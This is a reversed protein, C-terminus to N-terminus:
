FSLDFSVGILSLILAGISIAGLGLIFTMVIWFIKLFGSAGLAALTDFVGIAYPAVNSEGNVESSYKKRFRRGLEEREKSFEDRKRGAGHDHVKYVAEEAIKRVAKGYKPSFKYNETQTPIGCLRLVEAVCRVTYAGRSFGFLFIRDGPEYSKLISEYCDTINKSIGSGFAANIFKRVYQIPKISIRGGDPETGLGPDYFAIQEKPNVRSDVGTRCARYLKYINTMNQDPRIGGQQGTGDSFILINKSM